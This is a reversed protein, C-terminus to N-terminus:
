LYATPDYAPWRRPVGAVPRGSVVVLFVRIHRKDDQRTKGQGFWIAHANTDDNSYEVVTQWGGGGKTTPKVLDDWRVTVELEFAGSIDPLHPTPSQPEGAIVMHHPPTHIYFPRSRENTCTGFLGHAGLQHAVVFIPLQQERWLLSLAYLLVIAFRMM